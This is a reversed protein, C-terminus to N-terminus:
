IHRGVLSLGLQFLMQDVIRFVTWLSLYSTFIIDNGM